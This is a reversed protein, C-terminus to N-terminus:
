ETLLWFSEAGDSEPAWPIIQYNKSYQKANTTKPKTKLKKIRNQKQQQQKNTLKNQLYCSFAAKWHTVVGTYHIHSHQHVAVTSSGLGRGEGPGASSCIQLKTSDLITEGFIAGDQSTRHEGMGKIKLGM